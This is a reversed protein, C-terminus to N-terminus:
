SSVLPVLKEFQREQLHQDLGWREVQQMVEDFEQKPVPEYIFREGRSFKSFDWRRDQFEAPISYKWLPLFRDLHANLAKEARDLARLYKTLVDADMDDPVWWITHFTDEIIARLGLQEAMDIQPPLLSAAEVEGDLLASLRAGFGGVNVPKINELPLFKELRYPVNFHSGARMGVAIPVDKLDKPREIKSEPRVFIGWPSIGYCDPVFKGMGASANCISGWACASQIVTRGEAFPRDQPRDFYQLDKWSSQTGRFTKMDFEVDLGEDRFYGEQMAVFDNLGMGKPAVAVKIAM